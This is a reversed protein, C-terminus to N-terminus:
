FYVIDRCHVQANDNTRVLLIIISSRLVKAASYNFNRATGFEDGSQPTTSFGQKVNTSTLEDEKQRPEQPYVDPPGLRPRKLPRKEYMIGM